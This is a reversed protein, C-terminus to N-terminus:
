KWALWALALVYGVCCLTSIISRKKAEAYSYGALWAATLLFVFTLPMMIQVLLICRANPEHENLVVGFSILAMPWLMLALAISINAATQKKM